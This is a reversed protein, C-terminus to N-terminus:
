GTRLAVTLPRTPTTTAATIVTFAIVTLGAYPRLIFIDSPIGTASLGDGVCACGASQGAVVPDGIRHGPEPALQFAPISWCSLAGGLMRRVQNRDLARGRNWVIASM